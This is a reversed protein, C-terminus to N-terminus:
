DTPEVRVLLAQIRMPFDTPRPEQDPDHGFLPAVIEWATQADFMGTAVLIDLLDKFLVRGSLECPWDGTEHTWVTFTGGRLPLTGVPADASGITVPFMAFEITSQPAARDFTGAVQTGIDPKGNRNLDQALIADRRSGDSPGLALLLTPIYQALLTKMGEDLDPEVTTTQDTATAWVEETPLEWEERIREFVVDLLQQVQDDRRAWFHATRTEHLYGFPYATLSDPKPEALLALPYRYVRQEMQAVRARVDDTLARAAKLKAYASDEDHTRADAVAGYLLAAHRARWASVEISSRFEFFRDELGPDDAHPGPDASAVNAAVEAYFAAMGLVQEFDGDRWVEFDADNANYVDWFAVKVPRGVLGSVAGIEDHASEGALYFFILPNGPADQGTGYFDQVQRVTLDAIAQAVAPGAEGYLRGVDQAYDQWTTTGDWTLRALYHDFMWYNWEIGTTFTVHGDLPRTGTLRPLVVRVDHERSFNTIPLFLPLNNDFGLWWATEPFYVMPRADGTAAILDQHHHFNANNYVPAPHELDYFMTTHVFLGVDPDARSPLHFFPTQGDEAKLHLPTHIWAWLTMDPAHQRKWAAAAQFWGLTEADSLSTMETTGFQFGLFDFGFDLLANLGETVQAQQLPIREAPDRDLHLNRVLQFANQQKDAFGIFMGIQIGHRHGEAVIWRAHDAWTALDVTGLMHWDFANQRNRLLYRFYESIMPRHAPDAKLLYDSWVIPHQTHQHYGRMQFHPVSQVPQAWDDALRAGVDRPVFSERPHCWRAGHADAITYLGYAAGIASASEVRLITRGRRATEQILFGQDLRADGAPPTGPVEGALPVNALIVLRDPANDPDYAGTVRVPEPVAQAGTLRAFTDLLDRAAMDLLDPADAPIAITVTLAGDHALSRPDGPFTPTSDLSGCAALAALGALASGLAWRSLVHRRVSGVPDEIRQTTKM